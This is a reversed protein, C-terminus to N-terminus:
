KRALLLEILSVALLQENPTKLPHEPARDVELVTARLGSSAIVAESLVSGPHRHPVALLVRPPPEQAQLLGRVTQVLPQWDGYVCDSAFVLDWPGTPPDSGGGFKLQRTSVNAAGLSSRNLEINAQANALVSECGDTLLTRRAGLGAAYLGVAGTGCGLDLVAKGEVESPRRSLWRCVVSASPWLSGGTGATGEQRVHLTLGGPLRPLAVPGCAEESELALELATPPRLMRATPRPTDRPTM